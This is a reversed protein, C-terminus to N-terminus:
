IPNQPRALGQLDFKATLPRYHSLPNESYFVSEPWKPVERGWIFVQELIYKQPIQAHNLYFYASKLTKFPIKLDQMARCIPSPRSLRRNKHTKHNEFLSLEALIFQQKSFWKSTQCNGWNSLCDIKPPGFIPGATVFSELSITSKRSKSCKRVM